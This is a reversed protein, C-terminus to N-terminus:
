GTAVSWERAGTAEMDFRPRMRLCGRMRAREGEAEPGGAPEGEGGGDRARTDSSALGAGCVLVSVLREETLTRDQRRAAAYRGRASGGPWGLSTDCSIALGPQGPRSWRSATRFGPFRSDPEWECGSERAEMSSQGWKAALGRLGLPLSGWWGSKECLRALHQAANM